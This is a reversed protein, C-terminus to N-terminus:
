DRKDRTEPFTRELFASLREGPLSERFFRRMTSLLWAEVESDETVAGAVDAFRPHRGVRGGQLLRWGIEGPSLARTPCVRLCDGCELCRESNIVIEQGNWALAQELCADVCELCGSCLGGNWLPKVYGMVGFDKIQPRSCGNPCGAVSIKPLHHYQVQGFKQKLKDTIKLRSLGAQLKNVLLSWNKAAKPCDPCCHELIYDDAM